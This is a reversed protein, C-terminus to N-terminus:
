NDYVELGKKLARFSTLACKKRSNTLEFGLLNLFDEDTLRRIESISKGVLNECLIESSSMSVMCGDGEFRCDSLKQNEINFGLTVSDGCSLNTDNSKYNMKEVGGKYQPNKYYHLLEKSYLNNM